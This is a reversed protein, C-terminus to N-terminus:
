HHPLVARTLSGDARLMWFTGARAGDLVPPLARVRTVARFDTASCGEVVVTHSSRAAALAGWQAQWADVDGVIALPTRGQSVTLDPEIATTASGAAIGTGIRAAAGAGVEIVAGPQAFQPLADRLRAVFEAPRSSVVALPTTADLVVPLSRPADPQAAAAVADRQTIDPAAREGPLAIQVRLGLWRGAGPPVRDVYDSGDGGALVHEQRNPLRLLLRSGCLSVASHMAPTLRQSTIVWHVGAAPGERLGSTVLDLAAGEYEEPFRALLADLDDLLVLRAPPDPTRGRDRIESALGLLADWAGELDRPVRSVRASAAITELVTSKGSGAAGVVLLNGHEIPRYVAAPQAQNAPDDLLGIPIGNHPLSRVAALPVVASLPDLWPRHPRAGVGSWRAAVTDIDRQTVLPFQALSAADADVSVFARGPPVLPLAAADDTGIVARSDAQNNVRLSLRLASNALVSDRIVGAPRQTCLILHVGLSRGRAAIDAFLAHLDPFGSVMAAFEDVVIVLRPLRHGPQLADVSKAAFGALHRERRRLEAALSELARQAGAEDLDTIMGVCHPLKELPAFASGGKFDVLLVSAADPPHDHAIALIWTTLLESKGSGTTGGVVAHPGQQVLDLRLPGRATVAVTAALTGPRVEARPDRPGCDFFGVHDPLADHDTGLRAAHAAMGAAVTVAQERSVFHPVLPVLWTRDPHQLVRTASGRAEIVVRSSTPLLRTEEAVALVVEHDNPGRVSIVTAPAVGRTVVVDHPVGELWSWQEPDDTEAEVSHGAPSLLALVQVLLGRAVATAVVRGGVVGIGLRADVVIPADRLRAALDALARMEATAPDRSRTTVPAGDLTVESAREGTGVCIAVPEDLSSLWRESEVWGASVLRQASPLTDALLARELDHAAEVDARAAALESRFRAGERRLRRRSQIRADAVSAIAVAPGLAAFVLAFASKTIFWIALSVVVPAVTAM